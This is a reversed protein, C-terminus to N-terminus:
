RRVEIARELLLRMDCEFFKRLMGFPQDDQRAARFACHGPQDCLALVISCDTIRVPQELKKGAPNIDLNGAREVRNLAGALCPQDFNRMLKVQGQDCRVRGIERLGIKVVRVVCHEADRLRAINITIVPDLTRGVGPDLGRTVHTQQKRIQRLSQRVREDHRLTAGHHRRLTVRDQWLNDAIKFNIGCGPELSAERANRFGLM